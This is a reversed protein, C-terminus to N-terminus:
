TAHSYEVKGYFPDIYEFPELDLEIWIQCLYNRYRYDSGISHSLVGGTPRIQKYLPAVVETWEM